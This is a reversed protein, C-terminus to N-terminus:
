GYKDRGLYTIFERDVTYSIVRISVIFKRRYFEGSM